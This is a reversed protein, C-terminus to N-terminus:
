CIDLIDYILIMYYIDIFPNQVSIIYYIIFPFQMLKPMFVVKPGGTIVEYFLIFIIYRCMLRVWLYLRKYMILFSTLANSSNSQLNILSVNFDM